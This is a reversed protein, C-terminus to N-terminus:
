ETAWPGVWRDKAFDIKGREESKGSFQNPLELNLVFLNLFWPPYECFKKRLNTFIEM